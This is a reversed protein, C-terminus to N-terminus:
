FVNGCGRCRAKRFLFDANRSAADGCSPCVLGFWQLASPRALAISAALLPLGLAALLAAIGVGPIRRREIVVGAVIAASMFLGLYRGWLWALRSRRVLGTVLAAFVLAAFAGEAAITADLAAKAVLLMAAQAAVVLVLATVAIRVSWPM